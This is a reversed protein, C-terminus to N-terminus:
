ALPHQLLDAGETQQNGDENSSPQDMRRKNEEPIQNDGVSQETEVESKCRIPWVMRRNAISKGDGLICGHPYDKISSLMRDRRTKALSAVRLSTIQTFCLANNESIAESLPAM